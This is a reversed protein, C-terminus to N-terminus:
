LCCTKCFKLSYFEIKILSKDNNNKVFFKKNNGNRNNKDDDDNNHNTYNYKYENNNNDNNNGSRNSYNSKSDINKSDFKHKGNAPLTELLVRVSIAVQLNKIPNIGAM